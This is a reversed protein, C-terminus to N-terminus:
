PATSVSPMQAEAPAASRGTVRLLSSIAAKSSQAVSGAIVKPDGPLVLAGGLLPRLHELPLPM